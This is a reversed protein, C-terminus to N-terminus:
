LRLNSFFAEWWAGLADLANNLSWLFVVILAVVLVLTALNRVRYLQRQGADELYSPEVVPPTPATIQFPEPPAAFAPETPPPMTDTAPRPDPQLPFPEFGAEPEGAEEAEADSPEGVEAELGSDLDPEPTEVLGADSTEEEDPEAVRLEEGLRGGAAPGEGGPERIPNLSALAEEVTPRSERPPLELGAKEFLHREDLDLVAALAFVVGADTPTSADREWSRIAAASRGVLEGLKAQSLGLKTRRYRITRGFTREPM